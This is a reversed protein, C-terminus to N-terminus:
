WSGVTSGLYSVSPRIRMMFEVIKNSSEGVEVVDVVLGFGVLIVEKRVLCCCTPHVGLIPLKKYTKNSIFSM